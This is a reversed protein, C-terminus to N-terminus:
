PKGSFLPRALYRSIKISSIRHLLRMEPAPIYNEFNTSRLFTIKPADSMNPNSPIGIEKLM